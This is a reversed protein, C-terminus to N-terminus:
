EAVSGAPVHGRGVVIRRDTVVRQRIVRCVLDRGDAIPREAGVSTAHIGCDSFVATPHFARDAKVVPPVQVPYLEATPLWASATLVAPPFVPIPSPM